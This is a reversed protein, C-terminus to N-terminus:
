MVEKAPQPVNQFLSTRGLNLQKSNKLNYSNDTISLSCFLLSGHGVVVTHQEHKRDWASYFTIHLSPSIDHQGSWLKAESSHSDNNRWGVWSIRCRADVFSTGTHPWHHFPKWLFLNHWTSILDPPPGNNQWLLRRLHISLSPSLNYLFHARHQSARQAWLMQMKSDDTAQHSDPRELKTGM